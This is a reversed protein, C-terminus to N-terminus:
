ANIKAKLEEIALELNKIKDTMRQVKKPMSIRKIFNKPSEAPTGVVEAGPPVSKVVGSTGAVKCGDGLTIHGNIGAQAAVIVGRGITTSGAIGCQGILMSFEGVVVNHAIHVINDLKVGQKLWTKGFRARDISCNAGIEVDDDLQVIGVQPLKIIGQPGPAFGYGDSGITTGSHIIVRNGIVCRERVSVNAYFLCDDGVKSFHGIYVGAGIVSNKGISAGEDIVANAGIHAGEGITATEHVVAAPHIGPEFKIPEPAFCMIAKSFAVDPNDCFILARGDKPEEDYDKGVIVIGAQSGAVQSKYKRNGLFSISDPGADKLSAVAVIAIEPNGKLEGGIIESIEKATIQKSM